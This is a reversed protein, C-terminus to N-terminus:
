RATECTAFASPGPATFFRQRFIGLDVIAVVGDGNFDADPDNGFFRLRFQGLDVANSICDNNLDTDCSAGFGDGDPDRQQPNVVLVCNDKADAIGDGDSDAPPPAGRVYAFTGGSGTGIGWVSFRIDIYTDESILHVVGPRNIINTALNGNGGLSDAWNTYTLDAFNAASVTEPNGNIGAFAWRTDAPSGPPIYRNEVAINYLGRINDRTLWVGDTIRDQNAADTADAFAPKSFSVDDGSWVETAHAQFPIM